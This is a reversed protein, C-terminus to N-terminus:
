NDALCRISFGGQKSHSYTRYVHSYDCYMERHWAKTSNFESSSWFDSYTGISFFHGGNYSRYGAPLATFGSENTAGINPSNWYDSEPCSGETCEKIKGGAVSEGGLYDMLITWEDDSPVHWGDPCLGRSDGVAYWNYLNGYIDACDDGCTAQPTTDDFTGETPYVTYAGTALNEWESNTYGTPLETGERYNTVKLNETMWLQEGIQVTAYTNGEIDTVCSSGDGGCVGCDDVIATGGAVGGCDEPETVCGMILLAILLLKKM